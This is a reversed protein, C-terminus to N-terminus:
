APDKRLGAAREAACTACPQTMRPHEPCKAAVVTPRFPPPQGQTARPPLPEDDWSGANLWSSPHPIFQKEPLNPDAALRRAGEIIQEATARNLASKWAKRAADPKVKRPYIAYFEEFRDPELPRADAHGLPNSPAPTPAPTTTTTRYGKGSGKASGKASGKGFGKPLGKRIVEQAPEPLTEIVRDLEVALAERIAASMVAQAAKIAAKAMNPSKLLGDNRMFSRVLVEETDPDVVVFGARELGGLARELDVPTTDGALNAWRRCTVGVVGCYSLDPQSLLLLYLRQEDRGLDAFDPDTWISTFIRAHDRAM